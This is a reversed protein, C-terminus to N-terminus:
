GASMNQGCGDNRSNGPKLQPLDMAGRGLSVRSLSEVAQEIM